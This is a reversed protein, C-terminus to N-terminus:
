FKNKVEVRLNKLEAYKDTSSWDFTPQWILPDGIKLAVNQARQNNEISAMAIAQVVARSAEAEIHSTTESINALNTAM